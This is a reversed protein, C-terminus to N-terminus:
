VTGHPLYRETVIPYAIFDLDDAFSVDESDVVLTTGVVDFQLLFRDRRSRRYGSNLRSERVL